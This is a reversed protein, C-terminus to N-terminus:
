KRMKRKLVNAQVILNIDMKKEGEQMLSFFKEDLIKCTENKETIKSQVEKIKRDIIKKASETKLSENQKKEEELYVAYRTRTARVSKRMENTVDISHPQLKNTLM